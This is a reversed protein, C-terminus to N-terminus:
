LYYDILYLLVFASILKVLFGTRIFYKFVPHEKQMPIRYGQPTQKQPITM